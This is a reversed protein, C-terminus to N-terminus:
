MSLVVTSESVFHINYYLSFSFGLLVCVEAESDSGSQIVKTVYLCGNDMLARVSLMGHKPMKWTRFRQLGCTDDVLM